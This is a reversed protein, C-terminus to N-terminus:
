TLSIAASLVPLTRDTPLHRTVMVEDGINLGLSSSCPGWKRQEGDNAVLSLRYKNDEQIIDQVIFQKDTNM